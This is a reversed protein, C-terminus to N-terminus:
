YDSLVGLRYGREKFHGLITALNRYAVRRLLPLPAIHIWNEVVERVEDTTVRNSEATHRLIYDEIDPQTKCHRVQETYKRYLSLTRIQRLTIRRCLWARLILGAMRVRLERQDYLTGDVDFCIAKVSSYDRVGTTMSLLSTYGSPM